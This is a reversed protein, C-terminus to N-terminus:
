NAIKIHVARAGYTTKTVHKDNKFLWKKFWNSVKWISVTSNHYCIEPSCWECKESTYSWERGWEYEQGFEVEIAKIPIKVSLSRKEGTQIRFSAGCGFEDARGSPFCITGAQHAVLYSKSLGGLRKVIKPGPYPIDNLNTPL